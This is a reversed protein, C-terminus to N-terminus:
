GGPNMMFDSASLVTIAMGAAGMLLGIPTGSTLMNYSMQAMRIMVILETIVQTAKEVDEPLGMRRALVLYRLAVREIDRFTSLTEKTRPLNNNLKETKITVGDILAMIEKLDAMIQQTEAYSM